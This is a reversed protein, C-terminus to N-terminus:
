FVTVHYPNGQFLGRTPTFFDSFFGNNITALQFDKFLIETWNIMNPGFNLYKLAGSLAEYDVKDFAKEFDISILLKNLKRQDAIRVTDIVKRLNDSLNRGYLFGTQDRHIIMELQMKMRNAIIKALLKYDACLLIIPRWSKIRRPDRNRKPSLSIIGRRGSPYIRQLALSEKFADLLLCKLKPFFVKYFDAPIGDIGPSKNRKTQKLAISLEELTIEKDLEIKNIESLTYEPKEKMQFTIGNVKSYLKRYFNQQENLVNRTGKITRNEDTLVTDMTKRKANRKELAFFYKTSKEGMEYFKTKSRLIAGQTVILEGQNLESKTDDIKINVKEILSISNDAQLNICALKKELAKLKKRLQERKIRKENAVKKCFHQSFSSIEIKLIELKHCPSKHKNLELSKDILENMEDLYVKNELMATNLKWYGRGRIDESFGIHLSVFSHDSFPVPIIECDRVLGVNEQQVLFYDLRSLTIPKRRRWTYESIGENLLRWLDVWNHEELFANVFRASKSILAEGEKCTKRDIEPQLVINLDGGLIKVEANINDIKQFINEFFSPDDQNPAYANALITSKGYLEVNAIIFRGEGSKYIEKVNIDLNRDCCIAVGRSESSGHDYLIRGGFENKWRRECSKTSHSEQIFAIDVDQEHM